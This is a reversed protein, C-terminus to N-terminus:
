TNAAQQFDQDICEDFAKLIIDNMDKLVKSLSKKRWSKPKWTDNKKKDWATAWALRDAERETPKVTRAWELLKKMEPLKTWQMKRRDLYILHDDFHIVIQPARTANGEIVDVTLSAAGAGTNGIDRLVANISQHALDKYLHAIDNLRM